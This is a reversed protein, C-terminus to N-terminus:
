PNNEITEAIIKNILILKIYNLEGLGTMGVSFGNPKSSSDGTTVVCDLM